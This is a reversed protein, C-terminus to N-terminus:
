KLYKAKAANHEELTKSYIVMGNPTTLFYVYANAAPALAARLASLGPNGIPSPPLGKYKYTNWLSDIARDASSISPVNKETVYNVSSDVQLAMGAKLRRDMIDAVKARDADERVEDELISALTVAEHVTKDHLATPVLLGETKQKFNDLIRRVVENATADKYFRYTDPFLYGELSVGAPKSSLFAYDKILAGPVVTDSKAPVGTEAYLDARTKIIGVAILKDAIQRLNWGEPITVEVEERGTRSLIRLADRVSMGQKFIFTGPQLKSASGTVSTVFEFLSTSSIISADKLAQAIQVANMGPAITIPTTPADSAPKRV